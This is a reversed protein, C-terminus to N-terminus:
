SPGSREGGLVARFLIEGLHEMFAEAREILTM